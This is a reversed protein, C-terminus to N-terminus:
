KRYRAYVAALAKVTPDDTRSLSQDGQSFSSAGLTADVGLKFQVIVRDIMASRLDDPVRPLHDPDTDDTAYFGGVYTIRAARQQEGFFGTVWTVKSDDAQWADDWIFQDIDVSTGTDSPSAYVVVESISLIPPERVFVYDLGYGSVYEAREKREFTRGISRVADTNIASVLRVLDVDTSAVGLLTACEAATILNM